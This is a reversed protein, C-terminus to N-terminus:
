IEFNLDQGRGGAPPPMRSSAVGSRVDGSADTSTFGAFELGVTAYSDVSGVWM